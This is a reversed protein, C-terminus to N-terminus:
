FLGLPSGAASPPLEPKHSVTKTKSKVEPKKAPPKESIFKDSEFHIKVDQQAVVGQEHTDTERPKAGKNSAQATCWEDWKIGLELAEAHTAIGMTPWDPFEDARAMRPGMPNLFYNELIDFTGARNLRVDIHRWGGDALGHSRDVRALKTM